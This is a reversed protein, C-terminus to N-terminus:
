GAYGWGEDDVLVAGTARLGELEGQIRVARRAARVADVAAVLGVGDGEDGTLLVREGLGDGAAPGEVGDGTVADFAFGSGSVADGECSGGGPGHGAVEVVCGLRGQDDVLITETVGAG